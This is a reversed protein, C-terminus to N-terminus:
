HTALSGLKRRASLSSQDSQASVWASRLRRQAVKNSKDHPPEFTHPPIAFEIPAHYSELSTMPHYDVWQTDQMTTM